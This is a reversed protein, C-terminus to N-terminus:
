RGGEQEGGDTDRRKSRRRTGPPKPRKPEGGEGLVPTTTGANAGDVTQADAEPEAGDGEAVSSAPAQPRAEPIADGPPEAGDDIPKTQDGTAAESAAREVVAAEVAEPEPLPEPAQGHTPDYDYLFKLEFALSGTRSQTHGEPEVREFNPHRILAVEFDLFASLSKAVGEVSVPVRGALEADRSRDSGKPRFIPRISIMQVDNPVVEQLLNFLRTWSFAKWLIVENAKDARVQLGGLDYGGIDRQAGRERRDFQGLEERTTSYQQKLDTVWSTNQRYTRVNWITLLLLVVVALGLGVWPLTDNKFPRSSLNLDLTLM